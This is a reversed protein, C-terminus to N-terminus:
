SLEGMRMELEYRADPSHGTVWETFLIWRSRFDSFRTALWMFKKTRTM